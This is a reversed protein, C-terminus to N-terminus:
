SCACEWSTVHCGACDQNGYNLRKNGSWVSCWYSHECYTCPILDATPAQVTLKEPSGEPLQGLGAEILIEGALDLAPILEPPLASPGATLGLAERAPIGDVTVETREGDQLADYQVGRWSFQVHKGDDWRDHVLLGIPRSADDLVDIRTEGAAGPGVRLSGIGYMQLSASKLLQPAATPGPQEGDAPSAAHLAEAGDQDVFDVREELATGGLGEGDDCAAGLAVTLVLTPLGLQHSLAQLIFNCIPHASNTM